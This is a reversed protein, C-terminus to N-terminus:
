SDSVVFHDCSYPPDERKSGAFLTNRGPVSYINNQELLKELACAVGARYEQFREDAQRGCNAQIFINLGNANIQTDLGPPTVGQAINKVLGMTQKSYSYIDALFHVSAALLGAERYRKYFRDIARKRSVEGRVARIYQDNGLSVKYCFTLDGEPEGRENIPTPEQSELDIETLLDGTM